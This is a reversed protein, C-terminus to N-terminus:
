EDCVGFVFDPLFLMGISFAVLADHGAKKMASGLPCNKTPVGFM